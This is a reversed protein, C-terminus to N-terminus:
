QKYKFMSNFFKKAFFNSLMFIISNITHTNLGRSNILKTDILNSGFKKFINENFSVHESESGNKSDYSFESIRDIKYVGFGGFASIVEKYRGSNNKLFFMKKTVSLYYSKKYSYKETLKQFEKFCDNEFLNNIRLAWIDYYLYIQNPFLSSWDNEKLDLLSKELITSNMLENVKDADIVIMYDFKEDLNKKKIIELYKNRCIELRKSRKTYERKLNGLSSIEGKLNKIEESIIEQTGDTSDSEVIILYSDKFISSLQSILAFYQKLNKKENSVTSCFVVKKDLM